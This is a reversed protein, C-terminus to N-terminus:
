LWARRSYLWWEIGLIVLAAAILWRWFEKDFRVPGTEAAVETRGLKLSEAPTVSSENKNLLNVAYWEIENTESGTDAARTRKVQYAGTQSTEGFFVPRAPDLPIEREQGDPLTIRASEDQPAALLEIPDGAPISLQGALGARPLWSLLNQIFLPFSLHLPWNSDALDFACVVIQQGGRSVDALLSAGTTSFLSRAGEPLTLRPATAVRTNGPNLFRTLPHEPDTALIPPNTIEDAASLGPLDPLAHIYFLAGAPLDAKEGEAPPPPTWGNFVTLDYGGSDKYDGPAALSLQVRPDLAFARQLFLAGEADPASVLLVRLLSDERLALWAQNDVKLTDPHDIEARLLGSEALPPLAFALGTEDHAPVHVEEVALSADDFYLTLTTDLEQDAENHVQVFVERQGVGDEPNRLNFQVIGANDNTEGVRLFSVPQSLAGLEMLDSLNGDSLLLLEIGSVVAEVDPDDPALSQTVLMVDRINSQADSPQIGEVARRLKRRDDTFECQVDASDAFTVVMMRDGRAMTEIMDLARERALELRTGNAEQTQMSASRDIILCLNNGGMGEQRLYPRALAFVICLLILIQLLLLLNKRLRQFPANATLDQLSKIWLMTSPIIVETRRLKLLYLLIVPPILGLFLLFQPALFFSQGGSM